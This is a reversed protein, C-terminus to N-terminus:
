AFPKSVPPEKRELEGPLCLDIGLGGLPSARASVSGGYATALDRVIALGLGSGPKREDMRVGRRFIADRQEPPLGPGDDDVSLLIMGSAERGPSSSSADLGATVRVTTSTWKCGNEMLNGLMEQLDQQEGRFFMGQPIAETQLQVGKEAYLRTLVRALGQVVPAVEARRGPTRVAAAARARALHHEVQRGAVEVQEAVLRGFPTQEHAAANALVYLPTKLAHALNGAQTRAREVIEDNDQLVANFEQVLPQVEDPFRGEIRAVRGARVEVLRQRLLALPRLGVFVQVVAAITLGLALMGLFMAMLTRFEELPEDVVRSDAAVTLRYAATGEPPRVTRQQALMVHGEPGLIEILGYEVNGSPAAPTQLTQDWLSRSRFVTEPPAAGTLQDVQWYLGSYPQKLRPDSPEFALAPVGHEDVTLAAVLQNMHVALETSLQRVVHQRFLDSLALGALLVTALIWILTGALLRGRLSQQLRCLTRKM